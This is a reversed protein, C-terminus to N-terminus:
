KIYLSILYIDEIYKKINLRSDIYKNKYPVIKLHWILWNEEPTALAVSSSLLWPSISLPCGCLHHQSFFVPAGLHPEALPLLFYHGRPYFSFVIGLIQKTWRVPITEFCMHEECFRKMWYTWIFFFIIFFFFSFVYKKLSMFSQISFLHILHTSVTKILLSLLWKPFLILIWLTKSFHLSLWSWYTKESFVLWLANLFSDAFVTNM